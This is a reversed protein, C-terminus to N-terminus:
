EAQPVAHGNSCAHARFAISLYNHWRVTLKTKTPRVLYFTATPGCQNGYRRLAPRLM